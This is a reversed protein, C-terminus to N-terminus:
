CLLRTSSKVHPSHAITCANGQMSGVQKVLVALELPTCQEVLPIGAPPAEEAEPQMFGSLDADRTSEAQRVARAM